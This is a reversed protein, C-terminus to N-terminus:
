VAADSGASGSLAMKSLSSISRKPSTGLFTVNSESFLKRFGGRHRLQSVRKDHQDRSSLVPLDLNSDRDPSSPTTKGLHNEVRGGRLHPNVEEIEGKGIREHQKSLETLFIDDFTNGTSIDRPIDEVDDNQESDLDDDSEIDTDPNNDEPLEDWLIDLIQKDSVTPKCTNLKKDAM